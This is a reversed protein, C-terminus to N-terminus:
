HRAGVYLREELTGAEPLYVNCADEDGRSMGKVLTAAYMKAHANDGVCTDGDLILKTVAKHELWWCLGSAVWALYGGKTGPWPLLALSLLLRYVQVFFVLHARSVHRDDPLDDTNLFDEYTAHSDMM